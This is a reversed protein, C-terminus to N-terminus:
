TRAKGYIYAASVAIAGLALWFAISSFTDGAITVATAIVSVLALGALWENSAITKLLSALVGRTAAPPAVAGVVMPELFEIPPDVFAIVELEYLYLERPENFNPSVGLDAGEVRRLSTAIGLDRFVSLVEESREEANDQASDWISDFFGPRSALIVRVQDGVRLVTGDPLGDIDKFKKAAGPKFTRRVEDASIGLEDALAYM